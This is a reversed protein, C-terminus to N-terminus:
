AKGSGMIHSSTGYLHHRLRRVRENQIPRHAEEDMQAERLDHLSLDALIGSDAEFDSRRM